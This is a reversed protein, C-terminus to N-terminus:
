SKPTPQEKARSAEVSGNGSTVVPLKRTIWNLKWPYIEHGKPAIEAVM